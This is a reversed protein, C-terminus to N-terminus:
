RVAPSRGQNAIRSQPAAAPWVLPGYRAKLAAEVAAIEDATLPATTSSRRPRWATVGPPPPARARTSRASRPTTRAPSARISGNGSKLTLVQAAGNVRYALASSLATGPVMTSVTLVHLRPATSTALGTDFSSNTVYAGERSGATQWTNADIMLYTGPTSGQGQIIPDFRGTATMLQAVAIFTSM